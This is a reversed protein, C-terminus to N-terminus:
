KGSLMVFNYEAITGSASDQVDESILPEGREILTGASQSVISIAKEPTFAASFTQFLPKRPWAGVNSARNKHTGNTVVARSHHPDCGQPIVTKAYNFPPVFHFLAVAIGVYFAWTLTIKGNQWPMMKKSEVWGNKQDAYVTQMRGIGGPVITKDAM